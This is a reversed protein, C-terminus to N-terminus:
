ASIIRWMRVDRENMEVEEVLQEKYGIWVKMMEPYKVLLRDYYWKGRGIRWGDQSFVRWPIAGIDIPWWSRIHCRTHDPEVIGYAWVVCDELSTILYLEMSTEDIVKPLLVKRWQELCSIISARMDVEDPLANYILVVQSDRESVVDLFEANIKKSQQNKEDISLNAIYIKADKRQQQKM